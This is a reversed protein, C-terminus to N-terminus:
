KRKNMQTKRPPPNYKPHNNETKFTATKKFNTDSAENDSAENNKLLSSTAQTVNYEKHKQEEEEMVLSINSQISQKDETM